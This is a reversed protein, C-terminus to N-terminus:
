ILFGGCLLLVGIRFKPSPASGNTQTCVIHSQNHRDILGGIGSL